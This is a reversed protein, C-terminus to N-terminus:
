RWTERSRQPGERDTSPTITISISISINPKQSRRITFSNLSTTKPLLNHCPMLCIRVMIKKMMKIAKVKMKMAAKTQKMTEAEPGENGM